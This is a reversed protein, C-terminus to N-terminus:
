PAWSAFIIVMNQIADTMEHLKACGITELVHVRGEQTFTTSYSDFLGNLEAYSQKVHFPKKTDITYEHGPGFDKSWLNDVTRKLINTPCTAGRECSKFIGLENPPRCSHGTASFSYKNAEM